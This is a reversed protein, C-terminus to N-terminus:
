PGLEFYDASGAIVMRVPRDAGTVAARPAMQGPPGVTMMQEVPATLHIKRTPRDAVEKLNSAM